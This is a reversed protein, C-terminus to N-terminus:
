GTSVDDNGDKKKQNPKILRKAVSEGESPAPPEAFPIVNQMVPDSGFLDITWALSKRHRQVLVIREIETESKDLKYVLDLRAVGGFMDQTQDVFALANPTPYNRSLLKENAKKMRIFINGGVVLGRYSKMEEEFKIGECRDFIRKSHALMQNWVVNARVRKCQMTAAFPGDKWDGWALRIIKVFDDQFPRIAQEAAERTIVPM